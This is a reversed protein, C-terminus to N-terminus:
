LPSDLNTWHKRVNAINSLIDGLEFNAVLAANYKETIQELLLLKAYPNHGSFYTELAKFFKQSDHISVDVIKKPTGNWGYLYKEIESRDEPPKSWTFWLTRYVGEPDAPFHDPGAEGLPFRDQGFVAMAESLIGTKGPYISRFVETFSSDLIRVADLLDHIMHDMVALNSQQRQLLAAIHLPNLYFRHGADTTQHSRLAAQLEDLLIRYIELIERAQVLILHLRAAHERNNRKRLAEIIKFYDVKDLLYQLLALM